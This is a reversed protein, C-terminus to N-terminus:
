GSSALLGGYNLLVILGAVTLSVLTGLLLLPRRAMKKGRFCFGRGFAYRRLTLAKRIVSTGRFLPLIDGSRPLVPAARILTASGVDSRKSLKAWAAPLSPSERRWITSWRPLWGYHYRGGAGTCPQARRDSESARYNRQRPQPFSRVIQREDGGAGLAEILDFYRSIPASTRDWAAIIRADAAM